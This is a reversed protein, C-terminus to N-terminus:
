PGKKGLQESIEAIRQNIQELREKGKSVVSYPKDPKQLEQEWVKQAALLANREIELKIRQNHITKLTRDIFDQITAGSRQEIRSATEKGYRRIHERFLEGEYEQVINSSLETGRALITERLVMINTLITEVEGAHERDFEEYFKEQRAKWFRKIREM